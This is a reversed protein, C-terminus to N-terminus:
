VVSKRDAHAAPSEPIVTDVVIVQGLDSHAPSYSFGLWGSSGGVHWVMSRQAPPRQAAAQQASLASLAPLAVALTFALSFWRAKM